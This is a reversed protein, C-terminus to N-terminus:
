LTPGRHQARKHTNGVDQVIVLTDSSISFQCGNATCTWTYKLKHKQRELWRGVQLMFCCVVSYLLWLEGFM